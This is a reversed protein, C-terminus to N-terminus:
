RDLYHPSFGRDSPFVHAYGGSLGEWAGPTGLFTGLGRRRRPMGTGRGEAHAPHRQEGARQTDGNM